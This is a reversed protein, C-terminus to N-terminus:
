LTKGPVGLLHVYLVMILCARVAFGTNHYNRYFVPFSVAWSRNVTIMLHAHLVLTAFVNAFYMYTTCAGNGFSWVSHLESLLSFPFFFLVFILNSITLAIVYVAFASRLHPSRWYSILILVNYISGFIVAIITVVPLFSWVAADSTIVLTTNNAYIVASVNVLKRDHIDDM